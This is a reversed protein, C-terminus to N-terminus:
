SLIENDIAISIMKDGNMKDGSRKYMIMLVLERKLGKIKEVKQQQQM